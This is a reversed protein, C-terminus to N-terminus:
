VLTIHTKLTANQRVTIAFVPVSSLEMYHESEISSELAYDCPVTTCVRISALPCDVTQNKIAWNMPALRWRLVAENRVGKITDTVIFGSASRRVQRAHYHGQPNRYHSSISSYTHGDETIPNRTANCTPLWDAYLFRSIKPMQDVGDFEITSHYRTAALDVSHEIPPNYSYTGADRVINHGEHWVDLHLADAQLPRYASVPTKLVAFTTTGGLRTFGQYIRSTSQKTRQYTTQSHEDTSTSSNSTAIPPLNEILHEVQLSEESFVSLLGHSCQPFVHSNSFVSAALQCSPRFDRYCSQTLNFLHAGDNAGMNPANGTLPDVMDLLWCTASHARLYFRQTFPKTRSYRRYCEAFAM